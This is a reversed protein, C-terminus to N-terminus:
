GSRVTVHEAEVLVKVRTETPTRYPYSDVGLYKKALADIHEDAGQDTIETARGRITVYEYPNQLNLVTLTLRPDRELNREWARGRATNLAIRGDELDIWVPVSHITGDSRLTAVDAFNPAEILERGRDPITDAM